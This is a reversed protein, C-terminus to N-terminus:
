DGRPAGAETAAQLRVATSTQLVGGLPGSAFTLTLTWESGAAAASPV